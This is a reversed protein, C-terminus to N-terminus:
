GKWNQLKRREKKTKLITTAQLGDVIKDDTAAQILRDNSRDVNIELGKLVVKGCNEISILGKEAEKELCMCNPYLRGYVTSM